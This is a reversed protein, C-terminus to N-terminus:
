LIEDPVLILYEKGTGKLFISGFNNDTFTVKWTSSNSNFVVAKVAIDKIEIPYSTKLKTLARQIVVQEDLKAGVPKQAHIILLKQTRFKRVAIHLEADGIQPPNPYSIVAKIKQGVEVEDPVDILSIAPYVIKGYNTEQAVSSVVFSVNGLENNSEKNLVYGTFEVEIPRENNGCSTLILLIFILTLFLSAM